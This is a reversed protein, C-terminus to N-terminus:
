LVCDIVVACVTLGPPCQAKEWSAAIERAESLTAPPWRHRRPNRRLRVGGFWGVLYVGHTWQNRLLYRTALQAGLATTVERHWEGKVEVVVTLPAASGHSSRAEVKIDLKNLKTAQVERNLIIGADSGLDHKLWDAVVDSLVAEDKPTPTEGNGPENWLARLQPSEAITLRRQLRELSARVAELLDDVTDVTLAESNRTMILLEASTRNRATWARRLANKIAQHYRWHMWIRQEAPMLTALWRLKACAESTARAVLTATLGERLEPMMDRSSVHGGTRHSEDYEVVPFIRWVRACLASLQSTSLAEHFKVTRHLYDHAADLFVQRALPRSCKALATWSIEWREPALLFLGVSLLARGRADLPQFGGRASLVQDFVYIASARDQNILFLFARRIAQAKLGRSVLFQRVVDVLRSNWCGAYRELDLLFGDQRNSDRLRKALSSIAIGPVLLYVASVAARRVPSGHDHGEFVVRPWRTRVAERLEQDASLDDRFLAIAFCAAEAWNTWAGNSERSAFCNVLFRRAAARLGQRQRDDAQVWGLSDMIDGRDPHGERKPDTDDEEFACDCFGVWATDNTDLERWIINLLETRSRRRWRRSYRAQNRETRLLSARRLRQLTVAIDFRGPMPLAARLEPIDAYARRLLDQTRTPLEQWVHRAALIAWIARHELSIEPLKELIWELDEKVILRPGGGNIDNANSGPLALVLEALLRRKSVDELAALPDHEHPMIRSPLPRFERVSSRWYRALSNAIEPRLLNETAVEFTRAALENLSFCDNGVFRGAEMLQLVEPVDELTLHRALGYAFTTYERPPSTLYPLVERVSLVAPVLKRLALDKLNGEDDDPLKGHLAALLRDSSQPGTIELLASCVTAFALDRAEVREWLLPELETVIADGAINLAMRRVVPNYGSNAIYPRLQEALRPHRLTYYFYGTGAEDFVEEREAGALLRGILRERQEDSLPSVDARMLVAPDTVILHECWEVNTAALRAAVEALQPAVHEHGDFSVCLLRRLQAPECGGLYEAALHEAFTQHDFGYRESGRFSFLPTDLTFDVLERTVSFKEAAVTETGMAIEGIPLEGPGAEDASRVIMDRGGLMTLMAIRAAVRAVHTPNPSSRQVHRARDEDVEECLRNIARSFLDHHSGPLSGSGIMEALLLRLTIPRAALGKVQHRELERFFAEHDVGSERAALEVDKQRLPCLEYILTAADENWLASLSQGDALRWEAARCVLIVSVCDLPQGKLADVLVDVFFSVRRLAEDLGDILLRVRGGNALAGRWEPSEVTKRRLEEPSYLLRGTLVILREDDALWENPHKALVGVEITKGIGPQGSLVLCRRAVLENLHYVKPNLSRGFDDEPDDMFGRGDHGASLHGALPTWFRHWPLIKGAIL